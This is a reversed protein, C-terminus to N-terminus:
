VVMPNFGRDIDGFDYLEKERGKSPTWPEIQDMLWIGMAFADARDPSRGLVKKLKSKDTIKIKGTSNAVEYTTNIIQRCLEEDDPKPMKKDIVKEMLNWYIEARKNIFKEKQYSSEASNIRHVRYNGMEELRSFIGSGLGISDGGVDLCDHKNALIAIQGAIKMEDTEGAIIVEDIKKYDHIVYIVCEDHSTAPDCVVCRHSLSYHIQLERIKNLDDSSLLVNTSKLATWDGDRYARLLPQSHKFSRELTEIYNDPLHPNDTPLAPIYAHGPQLNDVFDEKLWCDAPNATYFEKYTPQVGNIKLRLAGRLVAVDERTTEEAQDIAFFAFEASNFKNITEQSDLGGFFIKCKGSHLILEGDQKRLEYHDTPITRKWTELTTKRFDVSQKRGIFGLPVPNKSTTLGFKKCM